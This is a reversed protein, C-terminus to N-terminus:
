KLNRRNSLHKKWNCNRCLLQYNNSPYGERRLKRYLRWGWLGKKRDLGGQNNIHDIDLVEMDQIECMICKGGYAAIMEYRIKKRDRRTSDRQYTPNKVLWKKTYGYLKEPHKRRWKQGNILHCKKCIKSNKEKLSGHWNSDNLVVNCINCVKM